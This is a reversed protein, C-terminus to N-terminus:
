PKDTEVHVEVDEKGYIMAKLLEINVPILSLYAHFMMVCLFYVFVLFHIVRFWVLNLEIGIFGMFYNVYSMVAPYYLSFGSIAAFVLFFLDGLYKFKIVPHYKGHFKGAKVDYTGYEPYEKSIFAFNKAITITDKIDKWSIWIARREGTVSMFYIHAIWDMLLVFAMIMHLALNVAYDGFLYSGSYIGYGTVLFGIILLAHLWHSFRVGLGFKEVTVHEM